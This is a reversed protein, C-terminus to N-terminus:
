NCAVRCVAEMWVHLIFARNHLMSTGAIHACSSWCPQWCIVNRGKTQNPLRSCFHCHPWRFYKCSFVSATRTESHQPSVTKHWGDTRRDLGAHALQLHQKTVVARQKLMCRRSLYSLICACLLCLLSAGVSAESLSTVRFADERSHLCPVRGSNQHCRVGIM